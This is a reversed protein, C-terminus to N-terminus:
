FPDGTNALLLNRVNNSVYWTQPPVYTPTPPQSPACGAVIVLSIIAFAFFITILNRKM